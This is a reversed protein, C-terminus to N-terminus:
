IRIVCLCPLLEGQPGIDPSEERGLCVLFKESNLLHLTSTVSSMFSLLTLKFRSSFNSEDDVSTGSSERYAKPEVAKRLPSPSEPRAIRGRAHYPSGRPSLSRFFIFKM